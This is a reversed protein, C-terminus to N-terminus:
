SPRFRLKFKMNGNGYSGADGGNEYITEIFPAGVWTRGATGLSKNYTPVMDVTNSGNTSRIANELHSNYNFEAIAAIDYDEKWSYNFKVDLTINSLLTGASWSYQNSPITSPYVGYYKSWFLITEGDEATLIYYVAGTYDLIHDLITQSKPRFTGTYCGDIYSTWLKILHYIDMNRDDQFSVNFEGATRSEVGHKGYSVKYGTYGTGYTDTNIYEDNLSFSVAANSLIFSFDSSQNMCDYSLEQVIQPANSAAYMFNPNNAVASNDKSEEDMKNQSASMKINCQPRVFFVHAFSKQLISDPTPLKFRNYQTASLRLYTLPTGEWVGLSHIMTERTKGAGNEYLSGISKRSTSWPADKKEISSGDYDFPKSQTTRRVTTESKHKKNAHANAKKSTMEEKVHNIANQVNATGSAANAPAISLMGSATYTAVASGSDADYSNNDATPIDDASALNTTNDVPSWIGFSEDENVSTRLPNWKTNGTVQELKTTANVRNGKIKENASIQDNLGNMLNTIAENYKTDTYTKDAAKMLRIVQKSSFGKTYLDRLNGIGYIDGVKSIDCKFKITYKKGAKDTVVITKHDDKLSLTPKITGKILGTIQKSTLKDLNLNTNINAKVDSDKILINKVKSSSSDAAANIDKESYKTNSDLIYVTHKGVQVSVVKTNGLKTEKGTLKANTDKVGTPNYKKDYTGFISTVADRYTGNSAYDLNAGYANDLTWRTLKTKKGDKNTVWYYGNEYTTHEKTWADPHKWVYDPDAHYSKDEELSATVRGSTNGSSTSTTHNNNNTNTSSSSSSTKKGVNKILEDVSYVHKANGAIVKDKATKGGKKNAVSGDFTDIKSM